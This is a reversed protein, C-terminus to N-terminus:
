DKLSALRRIRKLEVQNPEQIQNATLFELFRFADVPPRRHGVPWDNTAYFRFIEEARQGLESITMPLLRRIEHWRKDLLTDAHRRLQDRDLSVFAALDESAINLEQAVQEPSAEFQDRLEQSNLLRGIADAWASSEFHQRALRFATSPIGRETTTYTPSM